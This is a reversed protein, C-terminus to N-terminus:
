VKQGCGQSNVATDGCSQMAALLGFHPPQKQPRDQWNAGGGRRRWVEVRSASMETTCHEGLPGLFNQLISLLFAVSLSTEWWRKKCMHFAFPHIGQSYIWYLTWHALGYLLLLCVFWVSDFYMPNFSFSSAYLLLLHKLMKWCDRIRRLTWVWSNYTNAFHKSTSPMHTRTHM